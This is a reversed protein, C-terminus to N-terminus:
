HGAMRVIAVAYVLVIFALLLGLVIWNRTRRERHMPTDGPGLRRATKSKPSQLM